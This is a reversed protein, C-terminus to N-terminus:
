SGAWAQTTSARLETAVLACHIATLPHAAATDFRAM